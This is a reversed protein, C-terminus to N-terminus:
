ASWISEIRREVPGVVWKGVDGRICLGHFRLRRVRGTKRGKRMGPRERVTLAGGVTGRFAGRRISSAICAGDDRLVDTRCCRVAAADDSTRRTNHTSRCTRM